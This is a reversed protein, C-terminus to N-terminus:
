LPVDKGALLVQKVAYSGLFPELLGAIHTDYDGHKQIARVLERLRVSDPHEAPAVASRPRPAFPNTPDHGDPHEGGADISALTARVTERIKLPSWTVDGNDNIIHSDIERLAHKAKALAAEASAARAEMDDYDSLQVFGGGVIRRPDTLREIEDAQAILADRALCELESGWLREALKRAGDTM